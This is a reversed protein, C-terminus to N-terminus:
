LFVTAQAVYPAHQANGLRLVRVTERGSRPNCCVEVRRTAHPQRPPLDILDVNQLGPLLPFCYGGCVHGNCKVSMSAIEGRKLWSM